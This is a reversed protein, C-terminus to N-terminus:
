GNEEDDEDRDARSGVRAYLLLKFFGTENTDAVPIVTFLITLNIYQPFVCSKIVSTKGVYMGMTKTRAMLESFFMVIHLTPYNSYDSSYGKDLLYHLM